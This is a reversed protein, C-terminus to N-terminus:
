CAAGGARRRTRRSARPSAGRPGARQVHEVGRRRSSCASSSAGSPRASARPSRRRRAGRSSTSLLTSRSSSSARSSSRRRWGSATSTLPTVRRPAALLQALADLALERVRQAADLQEHGVGVAAAEGLQVLEGALDAALVRGLAHAHAREHGRAEGLAELAEGDCGRRAARSRRRQRSLVGRGSARARARTSPETQRAIEDLELSRARQRDLSRCQRIAVLVDGLEKAMAARREDSVRAPTTALDGEQRARRGRRAERPSGSRPTPSGAGRAPVRGHPALGDCPQLSRFARDAAIECVGRAGRRRRVPEAPESARRRPLASAHAERRSSTTSRRWSPATSGWRAHRDALRRVLREEAAAARAPLHRDHQRQARGRLRQARRQRPRAARARAAAAGAGLTTRGGHNEFGALVRPGRRRRARRARGRDRRQRDPAARRERVTSCTSCGSARSRAGRRAHLLQGLLQYGGCVGLVVADRAAAATCRRRAQERDPGRRM